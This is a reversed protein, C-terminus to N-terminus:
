ATTRNHLHHLFRSPLLAALDQLNCVQAFIPAEDIFLSEVARVQFPNLRVVVCKIVLTDRLVVTHVSIVVDNEQLKDVWIHCKLVPMDGIYLRANPMPGCECIVPSGGLILEQIIM